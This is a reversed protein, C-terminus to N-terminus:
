SSYRKPLIGNVWSAYRVKLAECNLMPEIPSIESNCAQLIVLFVLFM